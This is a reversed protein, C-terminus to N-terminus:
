KILSQHFKIKIELIPLVLLAKNNKLFEILKDTTNM